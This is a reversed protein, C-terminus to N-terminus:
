RSIHILHRFLIRGIDPLRKRCIMGQYKSGTPLSDLLNGLPTNGFDFYIQDPLWKIMVSGSPDMITLGLLSNFSNAADPPQASHLEERGEEAQWGFPILASFARVDSAPQRQFVAAEESVCRGTQDPTEGSHIISASVFVLAHIGLWTLVRLLRSKMRKIVMNRPGTIQIM